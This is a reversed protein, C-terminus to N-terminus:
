SARPLASLLLLPDLYAYPPPVRLPRRITHPAVHTRMATAQVVSTTSPLAPCTMKTGPTTTPRPRTVSASHSLIKGAEMGSCFRILSLSVPCHAVLVGVDCDFQLSDKLQNGFEPFHVWRSPLVGATEASKYGWTDQERYFLHRWGRYFLHRWGRSFLHPPPGHPVLSATPPNSAFLPATLLWNRHSRTFSGEFVASSLTPGGCPLQLCVGCM